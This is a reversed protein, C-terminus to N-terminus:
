RNGGSAGCDSPRGGWHLVQVAVAVAVTVRGIAGLRFRRVCAGGVICASTVGSAWLWECVAVLRSNPSTCPQHRMELTTRRGQAANHLSDRGELGSRPM